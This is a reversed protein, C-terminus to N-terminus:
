NEIYRELIALEQGVVVEDEARVQLSKITVPIPLRHSILNQHSEIILVSHKPEVKSNEKYFISHVRGSTLAMLQLPKGKESRRISFFWNKIRVIFRRDHIPYLCIRETAGSENQYFGKVGRLSESGIELRQTWRIKNQAVPLRQNMWLFSENENLAPAVEALASAIIPFWAADPVQKPIFEEDVFGTYFMSEEVWPHSLLELLFRENTQIGGSIWIEGLIKRASELATKWDTAFLTIQGLAGSTKWDLNQGPSVGWILTGEYHGDSWETVQSVENIVGPHPIKLWTDEAYLKLNIGCIPSEGGDASYGQLRPRSKPAQALLAPALTHMQWQVAKTRAVSEWLRYGFNLRGLAETFYVEVGNSLFVLNGIGVFDAGELFRTAYDELKEQIVEDLSQAPCVEIWNKGEFMLSGDIIPFFEIHGEKTRAFPQVFCRASELFREFFLLTTGSGEQIQNMWIPVWENLEELQRIVRVGYGGRARYASKLVFPLMARNEEGLKKITQEIERVSTVPEDSLVLTPIELSKALSLSQHINWFLQLNKASSSIASVGAQRAWAEIEPREGWLTVGPHIWLHDFPEIEDRAKFATFIDRLRNGADPDTVKPLEAQISSLGLDAVLFVTLGLSILDDRIQLTAAGEGLLLIAPPRPATQDALGLKM